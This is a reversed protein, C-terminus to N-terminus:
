QIKGERGGAKIWEDHSMKPELSFTHPDSWDYYKMVVREVDPPVDKANLLYGWLIEMDAQIQALTQKM